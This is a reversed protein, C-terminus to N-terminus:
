QAPGLSCGAFDAKRLADTGETGIAAAREKKRVGCQRLEGFDVGAREIIGGGERGAILAPNGIFYWPHM